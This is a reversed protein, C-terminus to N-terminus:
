FEGTVSSLLQKHLHQWHKCKCPVHSEFTPLVVVRTVTVRRQGLRQRGKCHLGDMYDAM